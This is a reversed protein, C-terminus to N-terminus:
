GKGIAPEAFGVIEHPRTQWFEETVFQKSKGKNEQFHTQKIFASWIDVGWTLSAKSQENLAEVLSLSAEHYQFGM